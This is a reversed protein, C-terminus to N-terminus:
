NASPKHKKPNERQMREHVLANLKKLYANEIRLRQVENTLNEEVEESLKRKNPKSSMNKRRGRREEFLAQPGEEYYIREWKDVIRDNAVNFKIATENLSLHNNHMYEVVYIKFNGDYKQNNRILGKAGHINYKRVWLKVPTVSVNFKKAADYTSHHQELIYKIVEFKFEVTYKAM